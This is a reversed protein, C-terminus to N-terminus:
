LMDEHGGTGIADGPPAPGNGVSAAQTVAQVETCVHQSQSQSLEVGHTSVHGSGQGM